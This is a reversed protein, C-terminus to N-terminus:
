EQRRFLFLFTRIESYSYRTTGYASTVPRDTEFYEAVSSIMFGKSESRESLVM